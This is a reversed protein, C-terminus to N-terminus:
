NNWFILDLVQKRLTHMIFNFKKVLSQKILTNWYKSGYATFIMNNNLIEVKFTENGELCKKYHISRWQLSIFLTNDLFIKFHMLATLGRSCRQFCLFLCLLLSAVTCFIKYYKSRVWYDLRRVWKSLMKKKLSNKEPLSYVSATDFHVVCWQLICHIIDGVNTKSNPYYMLYVSIICYNSQNFAEFLVTWRLLM